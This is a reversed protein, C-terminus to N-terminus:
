AGYRAKEYDKTVNELNRGGNKLIKEKIDEATDTSEPSYYKSEKKVERKYLRRIRGKESLAERIKEVASRNEYNEQRKIKKIDVVRDEEGQKKVSLLLIFFRILKYVVYLLLALMGIRLVWEIINIFPNVYEPVETFNKAVPPAAYGGPDGSRLLNVLMRFIFGIIGSIIRVVKVIVNGVADMVKGLGLWICLYIATVMSILIGAVILGNVKLMKNLYSKEIDRTTDIYKDLKEMYLSILYIFFLVTPIVVAVTKLGDSKTYVGALYVILSGVFTPWPVENVNKIRFGKLFYDSSNMLLGATAALLVTRYVGDRVIFFVAIGMVIHLAVSIGMNGSIDRIIYSIIFMATLVIVSLVSAKKQLMTYSFAELILITFLLNYILRLTKRIIDRHSIM